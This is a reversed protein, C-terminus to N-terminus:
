KLFPEKSKDMFYICFNEKIIANQLAAEQGSTDAQLCIEETYTKSHHVCNKCYSHLSHNHYSKFKM